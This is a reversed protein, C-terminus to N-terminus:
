QEKRPALVLRGSCVTQQKSTITFSYSNEKKGSVAHIDLIDGPRILQKFKVRAISKLSLNKQLVRAISTTVMNLQAIGPLIPDGPFHGNFWSSQRDTTIQAVIAGESDLKAHIFTYWM